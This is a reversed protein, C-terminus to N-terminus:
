KKTKYNGLRCLDHHNLHKEAFLHASLVGFGVAGRLSWLQPKVLLFLGQSECALAANCCQPLGQGLPNVPSCSLVPLPYASFQPPPSFNWRLGYTTTGRFVRSSGPKRFSDSIAAAWAFSDVGPYRSLLQFYGSSKMSTSVFLSRAWM